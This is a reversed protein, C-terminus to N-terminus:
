FLKAPLFSGLQVGLRTFVWWCLSSLVLGIILDRLLRPSGFARTVFAYSLGAGLAFGLWPMTLVPSIVAATALMLGSRSVPRHLDVGEAQEPEFRVGRLIQVVMAGGLLLMGGGIVVLLFGAGLGTYQAFLPLSLGEAFMLAGCVASFLPLVWQSKPAGSQGGPVQVTM